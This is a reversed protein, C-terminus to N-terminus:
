SLTVTPLLPRVAAMRPVSRRSCWRAGVVDSKAAVAAVIAAVAVTAAVSVTASVATETTDEMDASYGAGGEGEVERWGEERKVSQQEEASVGM